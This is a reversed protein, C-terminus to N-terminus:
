RRDSALLKDWDVQSPTGSVKKVHLYDVGCEVDGSFPVIMWSTDFQPGFLAKFVTPFNNLVSTVFEHVQPLEKRVGDILLSDHVTSVLLSEL